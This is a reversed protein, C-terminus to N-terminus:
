CLAYSLFSITLTGHLVRGGRTPSQKLLWYNLRRSLLKDAEATLYLVAETGKPPSSPQLSCVFGKLYHLYRPVASSSCCVPPLYLSRLGHLAFVLPFPLPKTRGFAAVAVDQCTVAAAEPEAWPDLPSTTVPPIVLPERDGESCLWRGMSQAPVCVRRTCLGHLLLELRHGHSPFM